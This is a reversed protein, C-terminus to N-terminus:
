GPRYDQLPNETHNGQPLRSWSGCSDSITLGGKWPQCGLEAGAVRRERRQEAFTVQSSPHEWSSSDPALGELSTM